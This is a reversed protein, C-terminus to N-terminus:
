AIGVNTRERPCKGTSLNMKIKVATLYHIAQKLFAVVENWLYLTHFLVRIKFFQRVYTIWSTRCPIITLFMSNINVSAFPRLWIKFFHCGSGEWRWPFLGPFSTTSTLRNRLYNRTNSDKKYSKVWSSGNSVTTCIVSSSVSFPIPANQLFIRFQLWYIKKM